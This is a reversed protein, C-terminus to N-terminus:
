GPPIVPLLLSSPTAGGTHIRFKHDGSGRDTPDEHLFIGNGRMPIGYLEPWPGGGSFEFDTASVTIALQFGDPVVISTPLVEIHLEVIEDPALPQVADHRHVPREPRSLDPDTSRHSARLWGATIVGRPDLASRLAVDVGSPDIVRLTVFVDADPESTSVFLHASLPGTIEMVEDRPSLVFTTPSTPDVDATFEADVREVGLEGAQADLYLTTWNTRPIPWSEEARADFTGDVHRVNLTVPPREEWGNDIGRLFHDFFQRQLEVGYDTYYEVWHELGHVELWKAESGARLYGELNGRTHLHHAWNAASLLPVSVNELKPTRERHYDDLLPHDYLDQIHDPRNEALERPSLTEPGSVLEGNVSSTEGRSGLGHQTRVITAKYWDRYFTSLIGGHRVFERYYDSSGEWPCIAALHPPALAAVQWQNMAYYSVGSLGVKGSSWAQTGAWEVCDFFDITERASFIDVYGPSRGAGRSDVRVCIYGHPVWKEPDPTEWVQFRNSSGALADPHNQELVRWMGPFGHQFSLGKGYPGHTLLVPYTGESAPRFVDARLVAGDSVPIAVDWDIRMGGVVESRLNAM